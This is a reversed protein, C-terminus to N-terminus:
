RRREARPAPLRLRPLGERRAPLGWRRRPTQPLGPLTQEVQWAASLRLRRWPPTLGGLSSNIVVLGALEGPHRRAWELAVMGGLSVGLVSVPGGPRVAARVAALTGAVDAPAREEHRAGCGPLDPTEVEVAPWTARLRTVFDGWHGQSRGLGRLLM